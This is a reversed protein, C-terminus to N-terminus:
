RLQLSRASHGCAQSLRWGRLRVIIRSCSDCDPHGQGNNDNEQCDNREEEIPLASLMLQTKIVQFMRPLSIQQSILRLHISHPYSHSCLKIDSMILEVVRVCRPM